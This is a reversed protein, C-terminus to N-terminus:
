PHETTLPEDLRKPIATTNWDRSLDCEKCVPDNMCRNEDKRVCKHRKLKGIYYYQLQNCDKCRANSTYIIISM